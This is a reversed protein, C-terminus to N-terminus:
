QEKFHKMKESLQIRGRNIRSKITGLPIELIKSIEEYSLEQFDRLVVAIRFNEPIEDLYKNLEEVAMKNYVTQELLEDKMEIDIPKGENTWLSVTQKRKNKRLETLANNKAITYIWTSFKAINKYYSAHTYLKIMTDQVVDEAQERNNFYRFVFNLLRDKYRHVLENYANIDGDQFRAILKEDTLKFPNNMDSSEVSLTQLNQNM